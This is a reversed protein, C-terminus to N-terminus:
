KGISDVVTGDLTRKINSDNYKLPKIFYHNKPAVEIVQGQITEDFLMHEVVKVIQPLEIWENDFAGWEKKEFLNTRVNGSCLTNM